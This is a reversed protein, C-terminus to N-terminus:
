SLHRDDHLSLNKTLVHVASFSKEKFACSCSLYSFLFRAVM